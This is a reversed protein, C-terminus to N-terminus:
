RQSARRGVGARTALFVALGLLLAVDAFNFLVKPGVIFDRVGGLAIRDILNGLSGGVVLGVALAALPGSPRRRLVVTALALAITAALLEAATPGGAVGLALDPNMGPVIWAAQILGQGALAKSAQDLAVIVLAAILSIM